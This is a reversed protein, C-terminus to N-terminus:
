LRAVAPASAPFILGGRKCVRCGDLLQSLGLLDEGGELGALMKRVQARREANLAGLAAEIRQLMWVHYPVVLRRGRTAHAGNKRAPFPLSFEHTLAGGDVQAALQPGFSKSPLPAEAAARGRTGLYSRLVRTTSVLVPWFEEFFM